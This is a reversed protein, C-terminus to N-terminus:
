KEDSNSNNNKEDKEKPKKYQGTVQLGIEKIKQFLTEIRDPASQAYAYAKEIAKEAEKRKKNIEAKSYILCESCKMDKLLSEIKHCNSPFALFPVKYKAALCVGHFRGTVLLKLSKLWTKYVTLSPPHEGLAIPFYNNEKRLMERATPMVCDTYGINQPTFTSYFTLDPTIMVKNKDTIKIAQEYSKSERVSILKLNKIENERETFVKDWVTNILVTPKQKCANLLQNVHVNSHHFTGEGHLILLEAQQVKNYVKADYQGFASRPLTYIVNLQYKRCLDFMNKMVLNSGIHGGRTDNIIVTKIPKM